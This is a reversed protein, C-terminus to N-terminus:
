TVGLESEVCRLWFNGGGLKVGEEPRGARGTLVGAMATPGGAGGWACGAAVGGGAVGGADNGGAEIGGAAPWRPVCSGVGPLAAGRAKVGACCGM